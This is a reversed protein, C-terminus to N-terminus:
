EYTHHKAIFEEVKKAAHHYSAKLGGVSTNLIESMERYPMEDFYRLNFVAKQRPPLTDTAAYLLKLIAEGDQTAPAVATAALAPSIEQTYKRKRQQLLTISENTAIRYLWTYLRSQERFGDIGRWAKIFTNQLVDDADPHNGMMHRAHVYLRERYQVVLLRFGQERMHPQRLLQLLDQEPLDTDTMM